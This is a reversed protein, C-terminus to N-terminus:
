TSKSTKKWLFFTRVESYKALSHCAGLNRKWTDAKINEKYYKFTEVQVSGMLHNRQCRHWQHELENLLLRNDTQFPAYKSYQECYLLLLNTQLQVAQDYEATQRETKSWGPTSSLFDFILELNKNLIQRFTLFLDSEIQNTGIDFNLQPVLCSKILETMQLLQDLLSLM